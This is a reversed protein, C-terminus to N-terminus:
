TEFYYLNKVFEFNWYYNPTKLLCILTNMKGSPYRPIALVHGHLSPVIKKSKKIMGITLLYYYSMIGLYREVDATIQIV